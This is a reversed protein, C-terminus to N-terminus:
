FRLFIETSLLNNDLKTLLNKDWQYPCYHYNIGIGIYSTKFVPTMASMGLSLHLTEIDKSKETDSNKGKETIGTDVSELGIGLKPVLILKDSEYIKYGILGGLFISTASNVQNTDGKAYYKFSGDNLNLRFKAGLEVMIKHSLPSSITLGIMPAYSFVDKSSIPRYSGLYIYYAMWKNHDDRDKKLLFPKLHGDNYEHKKIEKEFGEINGSFM